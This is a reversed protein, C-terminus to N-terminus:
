FCGLQCPSVQLGLSEVINGLGLRPYAYMDAIEWVDRCAIRGESARRKVEDAISEPVWRAPQVIKSQGASKPGYGFLGLQCRYFRIDTAQNVLDGVKEPTMDCEAAITHADKCSLEGKVAHQHTLNEASPSM